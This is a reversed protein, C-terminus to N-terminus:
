IGKTYGIAFFRSTNVRDKVNGGGGPDYKIPESMKIQQGFHLAM